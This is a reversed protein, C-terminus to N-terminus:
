SSQGRIEEERSVRRRFRRVIVVTIAVWGGILALNIWSIWLSTAGLALVLLLLSAGGKAVRYTLMDVLAKGATKEAYGLPIYLMEKAARFITYDFVKSAVKAVAMAAFAPHVAFGAVAVGLLLPITLLTRPITLLRLIPGVAAHMVITGTNVVAYVRGMIGTRLDKDPYLEEVIGNYQYDVLTIVMQVVGILALMWLLYSSRRLATFGEGATPKSDRTASPRHGARRALVWCILVCVTLIPIMTWLAHETGILKSLEGVGLNGVIGGLSGFVGFLGYFWRASRIPFVTNAFSYFIEVLIVIYIDKWIYLAYGTFPVGRTWAVILLALLGGTIVCVAGYLTVLDVRTSFRNYIAVSVAAFVAVLIWVRPLAESGHADLFLSECAPRAVAYSLMCFFALACLGIVRTLTRRDRWWGSPQGGSDEREADDM